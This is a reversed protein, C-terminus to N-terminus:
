RLPLVVIGLFCRSTGAPAVSMDSQTDLCAPTWLLCMGAQIHQPAQTYPAWEGAGVQRESPLETPVSSPRGTLATTRKPTIGEVQVLRHVLIAGLNLRHLHCFPGVDM